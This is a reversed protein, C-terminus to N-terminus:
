KGKRFRVDRITTPESIGPIKFTVNGDEIAAELEKKCYTNLTKSHVSVMDEFIGKTKLYTFFLAKNEQGEPLKFSTTEHFYVTGRSSQFSDREHAELVTAIKNELGELVEKEGEVLKKLEEIKDRQEFAVTCLIEFDKLTTQDMAKEEFFDNKIVDM